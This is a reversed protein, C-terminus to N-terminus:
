KCDCFALQVESDDDIQMMPSEPRVENDSDSLVIVEVEEEVEMSPLQGPSLRRRKSTQGDFLDDQSRRVGSSRRSPADTGSSHVRIMPKARAPAQRQLRQDAGERMKRITVKGEMKADELAKATAVTNISDDGADDESM